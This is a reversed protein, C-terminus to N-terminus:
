HCRSPPAGRVLELTSFHVDRMVLKKWRFHLTSLKCLRHLISMYSHMFSFIELSGLLINEKAQYFEERCNGQATHTWLLWQSVTTQLSLVFLFVLRLRTVTVTCWSVTYGSIKYEKCMDARIITNCKLNLTASRELSRKVKLPM